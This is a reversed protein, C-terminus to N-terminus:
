GGILVISDDVFITSYDRFDNEKLTSHDTKKLSKANFIFRFNNQKDPDTIRCKQFYAEILEGISINDPVTLAINTTARNIKFQIVLRPANNGAWPDIANDNKQPNNMMNNYIMQMNPSNIMNMNGMFNNMKNMMDSFMNNNFNNNNLNNNIIQCLLMNNLMQVQFIQQIMKIIQENNKQITQFIQNQDMQNIMVNNMMPNM